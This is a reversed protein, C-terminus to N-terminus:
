IQALAIIMSAMRDKMPAPVGGIMGDQPLMMASPAPARAPRLGVDDEERRDEERDGHQRHVQQAVAQAVREIRPMALLRHCRDDIAREPSSTSPGEDGSACRTAGLGGGLDELTDRFSDLMAIM